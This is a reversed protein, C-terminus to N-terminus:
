RELANSRPLPRKAAMETFAFREPIANRRSVDYRNFDTLFESDAPAPCSFGRPLEFFFHRFAFICEFGRAGFKRSESSPGL